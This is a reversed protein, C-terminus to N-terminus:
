GYDGGPAASSRMRPGNANTSSDWERSFLVFPYSVADDVSPRGQDIRHMPGISHITKTSKLQNYNDPM